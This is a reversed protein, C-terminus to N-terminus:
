GIGRDILTFIFFAISLAGNLKFFAANIAKADMSLVLSHERRLIAAATAIGAWYFFGLRLAIGIGILLLLCAAHMVKIAALSRKIGFSAPISKLNHEKDFDIDLFAYIVDFAAVWFMVAAGLLIPAVSLEGRMGVWGGIPACGLIMGLTFHSAWSVRKLFPYVVLLLVALPTLMLALSNLSAASYLFLCLSLTMLLIVQPRKILGKALPWDKTRPNIKDYRLDALRNMAMGFTRAGVMALTIFLFSRWSPMGRPAALIAGLYAFPLAFISHEFKVLELYLKFRKLMISGM